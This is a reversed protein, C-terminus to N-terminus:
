IRSTPHGIIQWFKKHTTTNQNLSDKNEGYSSLLLKTQETTWKQRCRVLCKINYQILYLNRILGFTGILEQKERSDIQYDKKKISRHIQSINQIKM